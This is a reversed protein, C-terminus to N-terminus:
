ADGEAPRCDAWIEGWFTQCEVVVFGAATVEDEFEKLRHEIFHTRDSFYTIGLEDRMPVHWSREYLPVRILVREPTLRIRLGDLFEVRHELHELVNSLVIIDCHGGPLDKLADGLIFTLNAPNDAAKAQEILPAEIDIGTVTSAPRARAISRAVAGYGCGIDLVRKGDDIRAVFFDHYNTLRHKPHVGDGLAMARDAIVRELDDSLGYLRKLSDAPTGLRSELTMAGFLFGRRLRAPILQLPLAMVGAIGLVLRKTGPNM